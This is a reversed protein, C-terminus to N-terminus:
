VEKCRRLGKEWPGRSSEGPHWWKVSTGLNDSDGEWGKQAGTELHVLAISLQM